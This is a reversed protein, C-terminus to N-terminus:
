CDKAKWILDVPRVSFVSRRQISLLEDGQQEPLIGQLPHAGTLLVCSLWLRKLVAAQEESDSCPPAPPTPPPSVSIMWCCRMEDGPRIAEEKQDIAIINEGVQSDQEICSPANFLHRESLQLFQGQCPLGPLCLHTPTSAAAGGREDPDM